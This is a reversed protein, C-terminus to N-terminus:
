VARRQSHGWPLAHRIRGEDQQLWVYGHPHKAESTITKTKQKIFPPGFPARAMCPARDSRGSYIDAGPGRKM